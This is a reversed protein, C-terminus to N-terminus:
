STCHTGAGRNFGLRIHLQQTLSRSVHSFAGRGEVERAMGLSLCYVESDTAMFKTNRLFFFVNLESILVTSYIEHFDHNTKVIRIASQFTM